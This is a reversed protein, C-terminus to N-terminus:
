SPLRTKDDTVCVVSSSGVIAATLKQRGGPILSVTQWLTGQESVRNGSSGAIGNLHPVSENHPGGFIVVTGGIVSLMVVIVLEVVGGGSTGAIIM